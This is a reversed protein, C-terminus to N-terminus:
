DSESSETEPKPEIIVVPKEIKKTKNPTIVVPVEVITVNETKNKPPAVVVVVPGPVKKVVKKHVHKKKHKHKKNKRRKVIKRKKKLKKV